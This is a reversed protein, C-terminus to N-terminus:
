LVIGEPEIYAIVYGSTRRDRQIKKTILVGLEAEPEKFLRYLLFQKHMLTTLTPPLSEGFDMPISSTVSSREEDCLAKLEDDVEDVTAKTIIKQESLWGVEVSTVNESSMLTPDTFLCM